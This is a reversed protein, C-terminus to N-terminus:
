IFAVDYVNKKINLIIASEKIICIHSLQCNNVHPFSKCLRMMESLPSHQAWLVLIVWGSKKISTGTGLLFLSSDHIQTISTDDSKGREVIKM